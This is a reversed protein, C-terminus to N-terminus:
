GYAFEGSAILKDGKYVSFSPRKERNTTKNYQRGDIGLTKYNLVLYKGQRKIEIVQKLPAGAKLIAPEDKTIKIWDTESAPKTNTGLSYQEQDAIVLNRIFYKGIPLSVLKGPNVLDERTGNERELILSIIKEGEIKLEGYEIEAEQALCVTSYVFSVVLVILVLNLANKLM